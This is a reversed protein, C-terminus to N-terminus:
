EIYRKDKLKRCVFNIMEVYILYDNDFVYVINDSKNEIIVYFLVNYYM